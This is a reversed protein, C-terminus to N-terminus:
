RNLLAAAIESWERQEHASLRNIEERSTPVDRWDRGICMVDGRLKMENALESLEVLGEETIEPMADTNM